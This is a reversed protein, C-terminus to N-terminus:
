MVFQMQTRQGYEFTAVTDVALAIPPWYSTITVNIRFSSDASGPPTTSTLEQCGLSDITLIFPNQPICVFLSNRVCLLISFSYFFFTVFWFYLPYVCYRGKFIPLPRM